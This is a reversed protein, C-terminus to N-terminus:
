TAAAILRWTAATMSRWEKDTAGVIQRGTARAILGGNEATVGVIQRDEGRSTMELLALFGIEGGYLSCEETWMRGARIKTFFKGKAAGTSVL